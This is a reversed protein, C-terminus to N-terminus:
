EILMFHVQSGLRVVLAYRLFMGINENLAGKSVEYQFFLADVTGEYPTLFALLLTPIQVNEKSIATAYHATGILFGRNVTLSFLYESGNIHLLRSFVSSSKRRFETVDIALGLGAITGGALPETIVDEVKETGAFSSYYFKNYANEVDPTEEINTDYPFRFLIHSRLTEITLDHITSPLNIPEFLFQPITPVEIARGDYELTMKSGSYKLSMRPKEIDALSQDSFEARVFPDYIKGLRYNVSFPPNTTLTKLTDLVAKSAEIVKSRAQITKGLVAKIQDEIYAIAEDLPDQNSM